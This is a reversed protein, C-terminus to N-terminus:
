RLRKIGLSEWAIFVIFVRLVVEIFANAIPM